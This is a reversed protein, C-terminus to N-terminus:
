IILLPVTRHTVLPLFVSSPVCVFKQIRDSGHVSYAVLFALEPVKWVGHMQDNGLAGPLTEPVKPNPVHQVSGRQLFPCVTM